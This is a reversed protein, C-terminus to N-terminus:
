PMITPRLNMNRMPPIGGTSGDLHGHVYHGEEHALVADIEVPSLFESLEEMVFVFQSDPTTMASKCVDPLLTKFEKFKTHDTCGMLGVGGSGLMIQRTSEVMPANKPIVICTVFM